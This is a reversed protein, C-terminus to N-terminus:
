LIKCGSAYNTAAHLKTHPAASGWAWCKAHSAHWRPISSRLRSFRRAVTRVEADEHESLDFLLKSFNEMCFRPAECQIREVVLMNRGHLHQLIETLKCVVHRAEFIRRFHQLMDYLVHLGKHTMFCELVSLESTNLLPDLLVFVTDGVYSRRRDLARHLELELRLLRVYGEIARYGSKLSRDENVLEQLEGFVEGGEKLYLDLASSDTSTVISKCPESKANDVVLVNTIKTTVKMQELEPVVSGCSTSSILHTTHPDATMAREVDM